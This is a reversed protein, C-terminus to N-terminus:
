SQPHSIKSKALPDDCLRGWTMSTTDKQELLHSSLKVFQQLLFCLSVLVLLIGQNWSIQLKQIGRVGIRATITTDTAHTPVEQPTCVM